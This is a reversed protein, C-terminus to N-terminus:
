DKSDNEVENNVKEGTENQKTSEKGYAKILKLDIGKSRAIQICENITQQQNALLDTEPIILRLEKQNIQSSNITLTTSKGGEFAELKDIYLMLKKKINSSNQYYVEDINLSKISTAKGNEFIAITPFNYPLNAGQLKRIERGRNINTMNWVSTKDSFAEDEAEKVGDEGAWVCTSAMQTIKIGPFLQALFPFRMEYSAVIDISKEDALMRSRTFDISNFGDKLNLNKLRVDVDNFYSVELKKKVLVKTIPVLVAQARVYDTADKGLKQVLSTLLTDGLADSVKSSNSFREIGSIVEDANTEYYLLSYVSMENCAGTIAHQIIENTYYVKIIFVFVMIAIIFVPLLIAAEVTISGKKNLNRYFNATLVGRRVKTSIIAFVKVRSEILTLLWYM